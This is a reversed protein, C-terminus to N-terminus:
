GEKGYLESPPAHDAGVKLGTSASLSGGPASTSVGVSVNVGEGTVEAKAPGAAVSLSKDTLELSVGGVSVKNAKEKAIAELDEWSLKMPKAPASPATDKQTVQASFGDDSKYDVNIKPKKAPVSEDAYVVLAGSSILLGVCLRKTWACSTIM